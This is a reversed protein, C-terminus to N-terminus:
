EVPLSEKREEHPQPADTRVGSSTDNKDEVIGSVVMCFQMPGPTFGAFLLEFKKEKRGVARLEIGTFTDPFEGASEASVITIKRREVVHQHRDFRLEPEPCFGIM